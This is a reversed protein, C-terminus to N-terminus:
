ASAGKRGGGGEGSEKNREKKRLTLINLLLSLLYQYRVKYGQHKYMSGGEWKLDAMWTTVLVRFASLGSFPSSTRVCTTLQSSMMPQLDRSAVPLSRPRIRM